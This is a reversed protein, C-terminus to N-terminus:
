LCVKEIEDLKSEVHNELFDIVSERDGGIVSTISKVGVDQYVYDSDGITVTWSTIDLSEERDVIYELASTTAAVIELAGGLNNMLNPNCRFGINMESFTNYLGLSFKGTSYNFPNFIDNVPFVISRPKEGNMVRVARILNNWFEPLKNDINNVKNVSLHSHIPM